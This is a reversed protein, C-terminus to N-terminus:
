VEVEGVELIVRNGEVSVGVIGRDSTDGYPAVWVPTMRSMTYEGGKYGEFTGGIASEVMDRFQNVMVPDTTRELALFRYFGRYSHPCTPAGGDSFEVQMDSHLGELKAHIEGLPIMGSAEVERDIQADVSGLIAKIFPDQTM